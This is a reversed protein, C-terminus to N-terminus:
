FNNNVILMETEKEEREKRKRKNKDKEKQATSSTLVTYKKQKGVRNRGRKKKKLFRKGRIWHTPGDDLLGPEDISIYYEMQKVIYTMRTNEM